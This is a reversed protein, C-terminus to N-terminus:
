YRKSIENSSGSSYGFNSQVFRIETEPFFQRASMKSNVSGGALRRWACNICNICRRLLQRYFWKPPVSIFLGHRWVGHWRVFKFIAVYFCHLRWFWHFFLWTCRLRYVARTLASCQHSSPYTFHFWKFFPMSSHSHCSLYPTACSAVDPLMLIFLSFVIYIRTCLCVCLSCITLSRYSALSFIYVCM